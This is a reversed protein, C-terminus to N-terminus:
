GESKNIFIKETFQGSLGVGERWNWGLIQAMARCEEKICCRFRQYFIQNYDMNLKVGPPVYEECFRCYYKGEEFYVFTAGFSKNFKIGERGKM